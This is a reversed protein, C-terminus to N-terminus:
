TGGLTSLAGAQVLRGLQDQAFAYVDAGSEVDTLMQTAAEGEGMAAVEITFKEAIDPNKELFRDCEGRTFEVLEEAVWVLLVEKKTEGNGKRGCGALVLALALVLSLLVNWQKM